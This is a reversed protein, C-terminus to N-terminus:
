PSVPLPLITTITESPLRTSPEAFIPGSAAIDHLALGQEELMEAPHIRDRDAEICV